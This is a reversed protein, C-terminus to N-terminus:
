KIRPPQRFLETNKPRTPSLGTSKQKEKRKSTGKKQVTSNEGWDIAAQKLKEPQGNTEREKKRNKVKERTSGTHTTFGEKRAL